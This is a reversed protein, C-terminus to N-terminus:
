EVKSKTIIFANFLELPIDQGNKLQENIFAKLTSAHVSEKQIPKLGLDALANSAAIAYEDEGKGFEASIINKILSGFNNSRLWRFAKNKGEDDKPISCFADTKLTIKRGSSLTFSDMGIEQMAAPLDVTSIQKLQTEIVEIDNKAELLLGELYVQKEALKSIMKLEEDNINM